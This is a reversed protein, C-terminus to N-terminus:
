LIEYLLQTAADFFGSGFENSFSGDLRYNMRYYPEGSESSNFYYVRFPNNQELDEENNYRGNKVIVQSKRILYESHTEIIMKCNYSTSLEYFLDALLSQIKPHLNQEPEEIIIIPASYGLIYESDAFRYRRMITALYLLLIMLQISGMGKDALNVVSGDKDIIKTRYAEGGISEIEFSSGIDFKDMWNTVFKYEEDEQSIKCLMYNHLTQAIFDNRDATNYITNQNASHASIYEIKISYLLNTLEMVSRNLKDIDQRLTERADQIYKWEQVANAYENPDEIDKPAAKGPNNAFGIFNYIIHTFLTDAMSEPAEELPLDWLTETFKDKQLEKIQDKLVKEYDFDDDVKNTTFTVDRIINELGAVMESQASIAAIDDGAESIKELKAKAEVYNKYVKKILTEQESAQGLVAYSMTSNLYDVDYKVMNKRDEISVFSVMGTVDDSERDGQVVIVFHFDGLTLEFRIHNPLEHHDGDLDVSEVLKNHIARSFTKIKVDQYKSVDFRFRPMKLGYRSIEMNLINDICLLFAKVLTSKGSNNGGVLLTINGLDMEPFQSFRRFNKFGISNM